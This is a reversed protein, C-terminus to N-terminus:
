SLRSTSPQHAGRLQRPRGRAPRVHQRGAFVSALHLLRDALEEPDLPDRSDILWNNIIAGAGGALFATMDPMTKSDLDGFLERASQRTLSAFTSSLTRTMHFACAGTLMARYFSRHQAFHRATALARPRQAEPGDDAHQVLERRVLDVAAEVLLSDRDGFQLYVLQRSVNAADALETVSIDTTGRESVLRVATTVLAARSRQM